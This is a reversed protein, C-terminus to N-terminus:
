MISVIAIASASFDGPTVDGNTILTSSFQVNVGEPGPVPVTIGSVGNVGNLKVQSLLSGDTRLKVIDGGQNSLVTIRVTASRTCYVRSYITKTNGELSNNSLVGHALNVSGDIDCSLPPTPPTVPPPTMSGNCSNGIYASGAIDSSIYLYICRPNIANLSVWNIIVGSRPMYKNNWAETVAGFTQSGRLSVYDKWQVDQFPSTSLGLQVFCKGGMLGCNMSKNGGPPYSASTITYQLDDGQLAWDVSVNAKAFFCYLATIGLIFNRSVKKM